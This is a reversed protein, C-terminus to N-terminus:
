FGYRKFGDWHEPIRPNLFDAPKFKRLEQRFAGMKPAGDSFWYREYDGYHTPNEHLMYYVRASVYGDDKDQNYEDLLVADEAATRYGRKWAAREEETMEATKVRKNSAAAEEEEHARKKDAEADAEADACCGDESEPPAGMRELDKSELMWNNVHELPFRAKLDALIQTLLAEDETQPTSPEPPPNRAAELCAALPGLAPEASAEIARLDREFQEKEEELSFLTRLEDFHWTWQTAGPMGKTPDWPRYKSLGKFSPGQLVVWKGLDTTAARVKVKELEVHENACFERYLSELTVVEDPATELYTATKKDWPVSFVVYVIFKEIWKRNNRKQQKSFASTPIDHFTYREKVPLSLLHYYSLLQVDPREVYKGLEINYEAYAAADLTKKWHDSCLCQALRGELEFDPLVLENGDYILRLFSNHNEAQERMAKMPVPNDTVL